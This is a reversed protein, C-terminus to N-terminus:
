SQNSTYQKIRGFSICVCAKTLKYMTILISKNCIIDCVFWYKLHDDSLQNSVVLGQSSALQSIRANTLKDM